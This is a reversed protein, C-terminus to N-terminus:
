VEALEEELLEVKRAELRRGLEDLQVDTCGKELAPFLENEEEDLHHLVADELSKLKGRFAVDGPEMEELEDCLGDIADHQSIADTVRDALGRVSRAAPYFIEEEIQTHLILLQELEDFLDQVRESEATAGLQAFLDRMEEHDQQLFSTAKM